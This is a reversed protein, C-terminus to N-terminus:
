TYTAFAETFMSKILAADGAAEAPLVIDPKQIQASASGLLAAAVFFSRKAKSFM